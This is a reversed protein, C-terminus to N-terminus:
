PGIPGDAIERLADIEADTLGFWFGLEIVSADDLPEAANALAAVADNFAPRREMEDESIALQNGGIIAATVSSRM